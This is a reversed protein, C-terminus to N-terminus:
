SHHRKGKRARYATSVLLLPDRKGDCQCPYVPVFTQAVRESPKAFSAAILRARRALASQEQLALQRILQPTM